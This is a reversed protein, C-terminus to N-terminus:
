ENSIINRMFDTDCQCYDVTESCGEDAQFSYQSFLIM